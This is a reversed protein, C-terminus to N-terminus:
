ASFPYRHLLKFAAGALPEGVLAVGDFRTPELGEFIAQAQAMLLQVDQTSVGTLSGTLSMHFQFQKLVYPYGWQQLMREQEDSLGRGRRRQVESPPLAQALPHLTMVCADAVGQIEPSVQVPVLALFNDVQLVKLSPMVFTCHLSCLAQMAEHLDAGTLGPALSFPAKLTAHWGYRRPADMVGNLPGPLRGSATPLLAQGSNPDLGLWHNGAQWLASEQAPAFYAAFRHFASANSVWM